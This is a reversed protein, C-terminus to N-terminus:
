CPGIGSDDTEADGVHAQIERARQKARAFDEAFRKEDCRIHYRSCKECLFGEIPYKKVAEYRAAADQAKELTAWCSSKGLKCSGYLSIEIGRISKPTIPEAGKKLQEERRQNYTPRNTLSHLGDREDLFQKADSRAWREQVESQPESLDVEVVKYPESTQPRAVVDDAQPDVTRSSGVADTKAEERRERARENKQKRQLETSALVIAQADAPKALWEELILEILPAVKRSPSHQALRAWLTARIQTTRRDDQKHSKEPKGFKEVALAYLSGASLRDCIVTPLWADIKAADFPLLRRYHNRTLSPYRKEPTFREAIRACRRLFHQSYGTAKEALVIGDDKGYRRMGFLAFDCAWLDSASDVSLLAQGICVFEDRSTSYSLKLETPAFLACEPLALHRPQVTLANSM